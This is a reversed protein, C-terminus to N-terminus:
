SSDNNIFTKTILYIFIISFTGRQRSHSCGTLNERIQKLITASDTKSTYYAITVTIRKTPPETLYRKPM